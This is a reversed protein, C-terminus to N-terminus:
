SADPSYAQRPTRWTRVATLAAARYADLLRLTVPGPRGDGIQRDDVRVVPVIEKTTSTLFAEDAGLLDQDHLVADAMAVGERAAVAEVFERTIGALLGADLAPTCAAGRKIIFLNSQSCEALEGRYNRMVAEFFPGRRLAEQMALANNLLNNSKIRPDVSRPHNRVVSVLSVAVGDRYVAPPPPVLPKVIVVVSAVPSKSPDYSMEGIGRTVLLRAYLEQGPPWEGSERRCAAM